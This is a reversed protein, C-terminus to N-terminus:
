ISSQMHLLVFQAPNYLEVTAFPFGLVHFEKCRLNPKCNDNKQEQDWLWFAPDTGWVWPSNNEHVTDIAYVKDKEDGLEFSCSTSTDIACNKTPQKEFIMSESFLNRRWHFDESASLLFCHSKGVFSSNNHIGEPSFEGRPKVNKRCLPWCWHVAFFTHETFVLM